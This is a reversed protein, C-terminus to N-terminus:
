EVGFHEKFTNCAHNIPNRWGYSPSEGYWKSNKAAKECELIILEAFKEITAIDITGAYRGPIKTPTFDGLLDVQEALEKIRENM